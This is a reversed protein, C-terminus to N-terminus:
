LSRLYYHGEGADFAVTFNVSPQEERGKLLSYEGSEIDLLYIRSDTVSVYQQVLMKSGDATWDGTGWWSGDLSELIKRSSGIKGSQTIETMWLDNSAGNRRTSQYAIAKGDLRWRLAGNRSEGDSVMTTEGTSPDLVFIQANESGGADMTFALLEGGPQRSVSGIPEEFFTLQQRSGGAKSVKHIQSVDGFRTSIYIEKGDLSWDRFPASRVNQYRNLDDKISQPIAPIDQMVLQGNNAETHVVKAVVVKAFVVDAFVVDAFVTHTFALTSCLASVLLLKDSISNM